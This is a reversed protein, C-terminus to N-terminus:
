QALVLCDLGGGKIKACAAQGEQQTAFPGIRVRYFAGMNGVVAEDVEPERSALLAGHERKLRSAIALAEQKTRVNALQIRFKGEPKAHVVAVATGGHVQTNSAWATAVQPRATSPKPMSAATGSNAVPEAAPASSASGGGFLNGFLNWGGSSQSAPVSSPEPTSKPASAATTATGWNGSASAVREKGHLEPLAATEAVQGSETLGAEQYAAARQKLTDSRESASLGGKLWLASTLDAIAQAPKKQQRYAMGRYLMAKAMVTPPLSGGALVQTLVQIVQESKGAELLKAASEVARQAEAPDQKKKTSAAKDGAEDSQKAEPEKAAKKAVAGTTAVSGLAAATIAAL